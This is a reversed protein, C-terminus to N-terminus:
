KSGDAKIALALDRKLPESEPIYELGNRCVEAAEGFRQQGVLLRSLHKYGPEYTPVLQVVLEYEREAEGPRDLKEYMQALQWHPMYDTPKFHIAQQYNEMAGAHDGLQTLVNGQAIYGVSSFPLIRTLARYQEVAARPDKLAKTLLQGYKFRLQPDNEDREIARRYQAACSELVEPTLSDRSATLEEIFQQVLQENALQNTFPPRGLFRNLIYKKMQHKDFTTCALQEACQQQSPLPRGPAAQAQISAPLIKRVQELICRAVLYNGAFTMHVHEYFLEKGPIGHPSGAALTEAADALHIGTDANGEAVHRITDNIHQDARFRLTDFERAQVYSERAEDFMEQAEQCMGLRFQLEAYTPDIEAALQYRGIAGDFDGATQLEIGEAVLQEWRTQEDGTIDSRHLSTFPPSDRLNSGVTSFVIPAGCRQAIGAIDQLNREFSDYVTELRPDDRRVQKEFFMAMGQWELPVGEQNRVLNTLLQVARSRQLDLGLRILPTNASYGAFITGVGYPGIVENNGLYVIFLDPRHRACDNAIQYVVHSNIATIGMNIVEFHAEPYADSLMVQLLRSFSYSMDPVGQAASGGLVFIRYTSAPKSASFQFPSLDRSIARPFFRWSFQHNDCYVVQGDVEHQRMARTAYGCGALWAGGELLVMVLLPGGVLAVLRFLWLKRRSLSPAARQTGAKLSDSQRTATRERQTQSSHKKAKGQRDNQSGKQKSRAM